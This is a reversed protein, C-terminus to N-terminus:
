ALKLKNILHAEVWDPIRDSHIELSKRKKELIVDRKENSSDIVYARDALRFADSLLELSAHYRKAIKDSDVNHGGKLVRNQVRLQNIAPDQTCIFYLYTTFGMQKAKKLFEIKSPHSMVTEFSFTQNSEVLISRFFEAIYSAQYSNIKETSILFGDSIKFPM